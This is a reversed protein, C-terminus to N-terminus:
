RWGCREPAQPELGVPSGGTGMAEPALGDGQSEDGNSFLLPTEPFPPMFTQLYSECNHGAPTRYASSPLSPAQRNTGHTHELSAVPDHSFPFEHLRPFGRWKGEGLQQSGDTDGTIQIYCSFTINHQIYHTIYM